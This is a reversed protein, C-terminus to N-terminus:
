SDIKEPLLTAKRPKGPPRIFRTLFARIFDTPNIEDAVNKFKEEAVNESGNPNPFFNVFSTM